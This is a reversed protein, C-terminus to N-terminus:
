FRSVRVSDFGGQIFLVPVKAKNHRGIGSYLSFWNVCFCIGKDM